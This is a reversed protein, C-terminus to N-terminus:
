PTRQYVRVYDVLMRAPFVTQADPPGPWNGGVSLNLLLHFPQDFPAPFPGGESRWLTQTSVLQGDVYWRFADREWEMAFLHFDDAFTGKPLAYPKGASQQRPWKGGFHITGHVQHPEHGIVEAIDIEGSAAWGGYKEATPLMWIAPWIGRGRPLKARVEVRCYTWDARHKTRLRGSTFQRTQGALTFPERRAEIILHGNEIRVNEPRDVFAQLENNGGGHANEEVAWKNFDLKPGDFEDAWVLKWPLPAAAYCRLALAITLTCLIRFCVDAPYGGAKGLCPWQCAVFARHRRLM